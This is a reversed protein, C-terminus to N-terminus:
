ILIHGMTPDIGKYVGFAVDFGMDNVNYIPPNDTLASKLAYRSIKNDM